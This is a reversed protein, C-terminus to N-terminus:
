TPQFATLMDPGLSPFAMTWDIASWLDDLLESGQYLAASEQSYSGATELIPTMLAANAMDNRFGTSLSPISGVVDIFSNPTHFQDGDIATQTTLRNLMQSLASVLTLVPERAPLKQM